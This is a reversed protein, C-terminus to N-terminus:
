AMVCLDCQGSTRSFPVSLRVFQNGFHDTVLLDAKGDVKSTVIAQCPRRDSLLLIQEDDDAPFYLAKLRNM